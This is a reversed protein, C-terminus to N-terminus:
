PRRINHAYWGSRICGKGDDASRSSAGWDQGQALAKDAEAARARAATIDLAVVANIDDNYRQIRDLYLNLLDISTIEGRRISSALETASKFHVTDIDQTSKVFYKGCCLLASILVTIASLRLIKKFLTM